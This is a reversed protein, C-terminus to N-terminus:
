AIKVLDAPATTLVLLAEFLFSPCNNFTDDTIFGRWGTLLGGLLLLCSECSRLFTGIVLRSLDLLTLLSKCDSLLYALLRSHM